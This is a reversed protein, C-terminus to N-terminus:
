LVGGLRGLGMRIPLLAIRDVNHEKPGSGGQHARQEAQTRARPVWIGHRWFGVATPNQTESSSSASSSETGTARTSTGNNSASVDEQHGKWTSLTKDYLSVTLVQQEHETEMNTKERGRNKISGDPYHWRDVGPRIRDGRQTIGPSSEDIAYFKDSTRPISKPTALSGPDRGHAPRPVEPALCPRGRLPRRDLVMAWWDQQEDVKRDEEIGPVQESDTTAPANGESAGVHFPIPMNEPIPALAQAWSSTTEEGLVAVIEGEQLGASIEEDWQTAIPNSSHPSVGNHSSSPAGLLLLVVRCTM